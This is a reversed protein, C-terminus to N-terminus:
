QKDGDPRGSIGSNIWLKVSRRYESTTPRYWNSFLKAKIAFQCDSENQMCWISLMKAIAFKEFGYRISLSQTPAAQM